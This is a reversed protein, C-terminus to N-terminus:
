FIIKAPSAESFSLDSSNIPIDSSNCLLETHFVIFLINLYL